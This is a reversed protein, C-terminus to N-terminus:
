GIETYFALAAEAISEWRLRQLAYDRGGLGLTQWEDRRDFLARLGSRIGAVTPEVVTGADCAEIHPALGAVTSILVV